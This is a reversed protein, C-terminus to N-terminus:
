EPMAPMEVQWINLGSRRGDMTSFYLVSGDHAMSPAQPWDSRIANITPGLNVPKGWPENKAPRTTVYLELAGDGYGGSRNSAFFLMLGNPALCPYSDYAPSNVTPGLNVPESWSDERTARKTRWLDGTGQGHPRHSHLYLELEDTSLCMSWEDESSNITPGLNVPPGWPDNVSERTSVWLDQKGYGSPRDSSLYLSLGDVSLYTVEDSYETNIPSDLKVPSGWPDSVSGRTTKYIDMTVSPRGGAFFYYSLGDDSVPGAWEQMGTNITPGLDIPTSQWFGQLFDRFWYEDPNTLASPYVVDLYLDMDALVNERDHLCHYYYARQLISTTDEPNDDLRRTYQRVMDRHHEELTQAPGLTELISVNPDLDALWIENFPKGLSFAFLREDPSWAANNVQSALVRAAQGTDLDFIWLGTEYKPYNCYGGLCFQRSSPAWNIRQIRPLNEWKSIVSDSASEWLEVSYRTRIVAFEHNPSLSPVGYYTSMVPEPPAEEDDIALSYLMQDSYSYNLLHKSDQHWYLPGRGLCRAESGNADMIWTEHYGTGRRRQEREATTLESLRLMHCDRMFAIHRG